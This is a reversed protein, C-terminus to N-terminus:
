DLEIIKGWLVGAQEILQIKTNLAKKNMNDRIRNVGPVALGFLLGILVITALIEVLTFGKKNM